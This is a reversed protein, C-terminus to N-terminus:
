ANHRRLLSSFWKKKEGKKAKADKWGRAYEEERVDKVLTGFKTQYYSTLLSAQWDTGCELYLTFVYGLPGESLNIQLCTGKRLIEIM